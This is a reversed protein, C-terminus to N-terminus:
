EVGNAVRPPLPDEDAPGAPAAAAGDQKGQAAGRPPDLRADGTARHAQDRLADGDGPLRPAPQPLHPSTLQQDAEEGTDDRQPRDGDNKGTPDDPLASSVARPM